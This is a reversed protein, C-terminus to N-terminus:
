SMELPCVAEVTIMAFRRCPHCLLDIPTSLAAMKNHLHGTADFDCSGTAEHVILKFGELTNNTASAIEKAPTM